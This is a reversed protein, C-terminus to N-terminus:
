DAGLGVVTSRSVSIFGCGCESLDVQVNL